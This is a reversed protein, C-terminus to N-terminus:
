ALRELFMSPPEIIIGHFTKLPLLDKKDGTVLIDANGMLAAELVLSDNAHPIFQTIGHPEYITAIEMINDLTEQVLVEPLGLKLILNRKVENLIHSSTILYFRRELALNVVQEPKGRFAIASIYINADLCVRLM